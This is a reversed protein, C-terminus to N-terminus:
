GHRMRTPLRSLRITTACSGTREEADGSIRMLDHRLFQVAHDFQDGATRAIEKDSLLAPDLM